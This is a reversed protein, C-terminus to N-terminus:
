SLILSTPLPSFSAFFYIQFNLSIEQISIGTYLLYLSAAVRYLVTMVNGGM